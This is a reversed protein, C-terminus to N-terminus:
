NEIRKILTREIRDKEKAKEFEWLNLYSESICMAELISQIQIEFWHKVGLQESKLANDM